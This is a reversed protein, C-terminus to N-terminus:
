MGLSDDIKKSMEEELELEAEWQDISDLAEKLARLCDICIWRQGINKMPTKKYGVKGCMWCVHMDKTRHEVYAEMKKGEVIAELTSERRGPGDIAPMRVPKM